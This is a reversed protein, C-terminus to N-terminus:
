FTNEKVWPFITCLTNLLLCSKYVRYFKSPTYNIRRTGGLIQSCNHYEGHRKRWERKWLTVQFDITKRITILKWAFSVYFRVVVWSAWCRWRRLQAIALCSKGCEIHSSSAWMFRQATDRRTRHTRVWLMSTFFFASNTKCAIFIKAKFAQPKYSQNLHHLSQDQAM